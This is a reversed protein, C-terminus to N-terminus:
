KAITDIIIIIFMLLMYGSLVLSTICRTKIKSYLNKKMIKKTQYIIIASIILASLCLVFSVIFFIKVILFLEESLAFIGVFGLVAAVGSLVYSTISFILCLNSLLLKQKYFKDNQENTQMIEERIKNM